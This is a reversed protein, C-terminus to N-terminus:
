ESDDDESAFSHTFGVLSLDRRPTRLRPTVPGDDPVRWISRGVVRERTMPQGSPHRAARFEMPPNKKAM